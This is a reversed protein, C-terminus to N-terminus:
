KESFTVFLYYTTETEFSTVGIEAEFQVANAHEGFIYIAAVM